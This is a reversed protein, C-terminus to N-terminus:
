KIAEKFFEFSSGLNYRKLAYINEKSQKSGKDLSVAAVFGTSKVIEQVEDNYLGYPYAFYDIPTKLKAELITKSETIEKILDERSKITTLKPHSKTHAAVKMGREKLNNVEEWTMSDRYNGIANTYVFFTAVDHYKELLPLAHAYQEKYGDDFTIIVPKKPLPYGDFGRLLDDLTIVTYHNEHLYQLEKEFVEPTTIYSRASKRDTTKHPRIHHYTLIPVVLVGVSTTARLLDPESSSLPTALVRQEQEYKENGRRDAITVVSAAKEYSISRKTTVTTHWSLYALIGVVFFALVLERASYKETSSNITLADTM